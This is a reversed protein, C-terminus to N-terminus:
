ANPTNFGVYYKKFGPYPNTYNYFYQNGLVSGIISDTGSSTIGYLYYNPVTLGIYPSWTFGYTNTIPVYSVDLTITTHTTSSDTKNGCTDIVSIKYSYSQNFPNSNIDIFHEPNSISYRNQGYIPQFKM